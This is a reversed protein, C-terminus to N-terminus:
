SLITSSSEVFPRRNLRQQDVEDLLDPQQSAVHLLVSLLEFAVLSSETRISCFNEAIASDIEARRDPTRSSREAVAKWIGACDVQRKSVGFM